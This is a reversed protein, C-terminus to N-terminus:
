SAVVDFSAGGIAFDLTFNVENAMPNELMLMAADFSEACTQIDVEQHGEEMQELWSDFQTQAKALSAYNEPTKQIQLAAVLRERKEQAKGQYQTPIDFERLSAPPVSQGKQAAMAKETYFRAAQYDYKRNEEQALAMYESALFSSFDNGAAPAIDQPAVSGMSALDESYHGCASISLACILAFVNNKLSM